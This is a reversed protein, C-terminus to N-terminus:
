MQASPAGPLETWRPKSRAARWESIAALAADMVAAGDDGAQRWEDAYCKGVEVADGMAGGGEM